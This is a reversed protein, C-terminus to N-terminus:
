ELRRCADIGGVDVSGIPWATQSHVLWNIALLRPALSPMGTPIHGVLEVGRAHLNLLRVGATAAAAALLPAPLKPMFRKIVLLFVIVAAGVALTPTSTNPVNHITSLLNQVFQGRPIHVGLIKPVQDVIIVLGIGAKFGVLVPESIFTAVFGLRLVCALWMHDSGATRHCSTPGVLQLLLNAFRECREIRCSRRFGNFGTYAPTFKLVLNEYRAM